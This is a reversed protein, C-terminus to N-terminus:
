MGGWLFNIQTVLGNGTVFKRGFTSNICKCRMHLCYRRRVGSTGANKYSFPQASNLYSTLSTPIHDLSRMHPSFDDLYAFVLM